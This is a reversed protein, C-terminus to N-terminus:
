IAKHRLLQRFVLFGPLMPLWYSILRYLLVASLAEPTNLGSAYLGAFLGLEVGGLGGPTPAIAGGGLGLAFVVITQIFSIQSGTALVCFYLSSIYLLSTGLAMLYALFLYRPNTRYDNVLLKTERYIIAIQVRLWRWFFLGIIFAVIGVVLYIILWSPVSYSLTHSISGHTIVLSTIVITTYAVFGIINNLGVIAVSRTKKRLKNTLFRINIAIGGISVPLLRSSFGTAIEVLWLDRYKIKNQCLAWYLGSATLYTSILCATAVLTMFLNSGLAIAFGQRLKTIQSAFIYVFIGVSTVLLGQRWRILSQGSSKQKRSHMVAM